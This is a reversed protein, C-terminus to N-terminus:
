AVDKQFLGNLISAQMSFFTLSFRQRRNILKSSMEVYKTMIEANAIHM